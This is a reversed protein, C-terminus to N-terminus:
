RRMTNNLQVSTVTTQLKSLQEKLDALENPENSVYGNIFRKVQYSALSTVFAALEPVAVQPASLIKALMLYITLNTISLRGQEDVLRLFVALDKLNGM